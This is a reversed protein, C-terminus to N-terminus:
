YEGIMPTGLLEWTKGDCKMKLLFTTRVTAGFGNQSDVWGKVSFVDNGLNTVCTETDQEPYFGGRGFSATSPSKLYQKIIDQTLTWVLHKRSFTKEEPESSENSIGIYLIFASIALIVVGIKLLLRANEKKIESVREPSLLYGCNPCITVTESLYKRCEPCMIWAM